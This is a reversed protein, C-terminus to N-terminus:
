KKAGAAELGRIVASNDIFRPTENAFGRATLGCAARVNVDAGKDLLLQVVAESGARAALMLPTVGKLSNLVDMKRSHSRGAQENM